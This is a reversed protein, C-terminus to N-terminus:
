LLKIEDPYDAQLNLKGGTKDWQVVIDGYPAPVRGSARDLVTTVPELTFTLFGPQVPKVGLQGSGNPV